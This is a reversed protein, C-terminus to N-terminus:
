LTAHREESVRWMQQSCISRARVYVYREIWGKSSVVTMAKQRNMQSMMKGELEEACDIHNTQWSSRFLAFKEYECITYAKEIKGDTKKEPYSAKDQLINNNGNIKNFYIEEIM